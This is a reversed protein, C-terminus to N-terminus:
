KEESEGTLIMDLCAIQSQLQAVRAGQETSFLSENEKRRLSAVFLKHAFPVLIALALLAAAGFAITLAVPLVSQTRTIYNASIGAAAVFALAVAVFLVVRKLYYRFNQDFAERRTTQAQSFEEFLPEYERQLEEKAAGLQEGVNDLLYRRSEEPLAAFEEAYTENFYVEDVTFDRTRARVLGKGAEASDADYSLADKFHEAAEEFCESKLALNGQGILKDRKEEAEKLARQREEELAALQTPTLGVADEDYEEENTDPVDLLFAGDLEEDDDIMREDM